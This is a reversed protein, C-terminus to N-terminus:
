PKPPLEISETHVLKGNDLFKWGRDKLAWEIAPHHAAM